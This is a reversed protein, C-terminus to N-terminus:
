PMRGIHKGDILVTQDRQPEAGTGDIVTVHTIAVTARDATGRDCASSTLTVAATAALLCHTSRNM